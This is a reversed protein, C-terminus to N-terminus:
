RENELYSVMACSSLVVDTMAGGVTEGDTTMGHRGGGIPCRQAYQWVDCCM